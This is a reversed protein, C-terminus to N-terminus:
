KRRTQKALADAPLESRIVTTLKWGTCEGWTCDCLEALDYLFPKMEVAMFTGVREVYQAKDERYREETNAM